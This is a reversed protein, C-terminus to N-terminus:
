KSSLDLIWNWFVNNTNHIDMSLVYKHLYKDSLFILLRTMKELATGPRKSNKLKANFCRILIKNSCVGWQYYLMEVAIYKNFYVTICHFLWFIKSLSSSVEYYLQHTTRLFRSFKLRFKKISEWLTKSDTEWVFRLCM